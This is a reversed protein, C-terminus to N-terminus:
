KRIGNEDFTKKLSSEVAGISIFLTALQLLFLITVILGLTNESAHMFALMSIITILLLPVGMIIWLKGCLHHAYIWTDMNKMSRTTRYGICSNIEKPPNKYMCIGGILLVLPVLLLCIFMTIYFVM